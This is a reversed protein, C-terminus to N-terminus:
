SSLPPEAIVIRQIHDPDVAYCSDAANQHRTEEGRLRDIGSAGITEQLPIASKKRHLRQRDDDNSQERSSPCPHDEFGHIPGDPQPHRRLLLAHPQIQTLM